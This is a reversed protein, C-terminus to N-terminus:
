ARYARLERSLVAPTRGTELRIARTMHSQDAFGTRIALAALDPADPLEDLAARVRLRRRYTSLTCGTARRFMRSLHWPSWGVAAALGALDGAPDAHLRARVDDIAAPLAAPGSDTPLLAAILDAALDARDAAAAARLRRHALDAAPSVHVHTRAHAFRDALDDGIGVSTCVDPGGPHAVRQCQGPRQLYGITVDAVAARGDASRLFVGRRVLVLSAGTVEEEPSWGARGGPCHVTVVRAFPTEVLLSRDLM